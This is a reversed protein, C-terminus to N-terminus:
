LTSPPVGFQMSLTSKEMSGVYFCLVLGLAQHHYRLNAPRGKSAPRLIYYFRSFRRLRQHFAAWTLSTDSCFNTDHGYKYLIM